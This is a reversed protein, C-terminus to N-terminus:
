AAVHRAHAARASEGAWDRAARAVDGLREAALPAPLGAGSRHVITHLLRNVEGELREASLGLERSRRQVWEEITAFRETRFLRQLVSQRQDSTARLFTQFEGQPLLVVQMFQESTMGLLLSLEHGVEAIRASVLREDDGSIETLRASANERTTGEGRKKARQWEPTRRVRYRREGITLELEVFPLAAPAAHDSRVARVERVGPLVGYLAFCIADLISSKGAGTPGTLLFLGADNLEEFDLTQTDAYPGFASVTLQHFRM